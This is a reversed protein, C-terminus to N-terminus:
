SWRKHKRFLGSDQIFWVKFLTGIYFSKLNTLKFGTYVSCRDIGFVCFNTELLNPKSLHDDHFFRVFALNVSGRSV